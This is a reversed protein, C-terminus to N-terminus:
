LTYLLRVSFLNNFQGKTGWGYNYPVREAPRISLVSYQFRVNAHLRKYVHRGLGFVYNIDTTNFRNNDEHIYVLPDQIWENTRVLIAYSAGAEATYEKYTYRFVVPAEIYGLGIHCQATYTGTLPSGTVAVGHSGKQVYLLEAQLGLRETFHMNVFAGVVIGPKNYGFYRDGDVQALNLGAALGGTFTKFEEDYGTTRAIAHGAPILGAMFM